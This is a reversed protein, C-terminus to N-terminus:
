RRAEGGSSGSTTAGSTAAGTSQAEAAPTAGRTAGAGAAAAAAEAERRARAESIEEGRRVLGKAGEVLGQAAALLPVRGAFKIADTEELWAALQQQESVTLETSPLWGLIEPRTAELAPQEWRRGLYRRLIWSLEQVFERMQGRETYGFSLLSQLSTRFETAPPPLPIAAAGEQAATRRRLFRWAAYAGALVLLALAVPVWPFRRISVLPALPRLSVQAQPDVRGGVALARSETLALTEGGASVLAAPPITLRGARPAILVIDYRRASWGDDAGVAASDARGVLLTDRPLGWAVHVFRLSDPWRGDIRVPVPDGVGVTDVDCTARWLLGQGSSQRCGPLGAACLVALLAALGAAPLVACLAARAIGIAGRARSGTQSGPRRM